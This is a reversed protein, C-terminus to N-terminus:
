RWTYTFRSALGRASRSDLEPFKRRLAATFLDGAAALSTSSWDVVFDEMLYKDILARRSEHDEPFAGRLRSDPDGIPQYGGHEDGLYVRLTRNIDFTASM